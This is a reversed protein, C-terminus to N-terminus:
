LQNKIGTILESTTNYETFADKNVEKFYLLLCRIYENVKRDNGEKTLPNDFVNSDMKNIVDRILLIIFLSLAERDKKLETINEFPNGDNYNKMSTHSVIKSLLNDLARHDTTSMLALNSKNNLSKDPLLHSVEQTDGEQIDMVIRHVRKKNSNDGAEIYGNSGVSWVKSAQCVKDFDEKDVYCIDTHFFERQGKAANRQEKNNVSTVPIECCVFPYGQYPCIEKDAFAIDSKIENQTRKKIEKWDSGKNVFNAM